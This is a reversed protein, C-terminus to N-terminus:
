SDPHEKGDIATLQASFPASLWFLRWITTKESKATWNDGV